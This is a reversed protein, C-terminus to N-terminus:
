KVKAIEAKVTDIDNRAQEKATSRLFSRTPLRLQHQKVMVQRPEIPKGFAQTITRLHEKVTFTGGEEHWKGYLLEPGIGTIASSGNDDDVFVTHVGASLRGSRRNLVQGQLKQTKIISERRLGVIRVAKRAADLYGKVTTRISAITETDGLVKAEVKM